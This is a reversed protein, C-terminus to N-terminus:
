FMVDPSDIREITPQRGIESLRPEASVRRRPREILVHREHNGEARGSHGPWAAKTNVPNDKAEGDSSSRLNSAADDHVKAHRNM